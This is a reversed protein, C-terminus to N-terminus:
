KEGRVLIPNKAGANMRLTQQNREVRFNAPFDSRSNLFLSELLRAPAPFRIAGASVAGPGLHIRNQEQFVTRRM